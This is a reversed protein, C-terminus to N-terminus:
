RALRNNRRFGLRCNKRHRPYPYIGSRATELANCLNRAKNYKEIQAETYTVATEPAATEDAAFVAFSASMIFIVMVLSICKKLMNKM